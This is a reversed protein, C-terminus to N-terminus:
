PLGLREHVFVSPFGYGQSANAAFPSVKEAAVSNRNRLLVNIKGVQIIIACLPNGPLQHIRVPLAREVGNVDDIVLELGDDLLSNDNLPQQRDLLKVRRM